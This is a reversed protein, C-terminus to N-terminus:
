MWPAQFIDKCLPCVLIETARRFRKSQLDTYRRMNSIVRATCVEEFREYDALRAQDKAREVELAYCRKRSNALQMRASSLQLIVSARALFPGM